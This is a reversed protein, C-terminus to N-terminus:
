DGLLAGIYDDPLKVTIKEGNVEKIFVDHLPILLEDDKYAVCLCPQMFREYVRIVKGIVGYSADVVLGGAMGVCDEGKNDVMDKKDMFVRSGQLKIAQSRTTIQCLKVWAGSDVTRFGEILYPVYTGHMYVFIRKSESLIVELDEFGIFLEGQLGRVKQVSGIPQYTTQM